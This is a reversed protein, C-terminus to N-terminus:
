PDALERYGAQSGVTSVRLFSLIREADVPSLQSKKEELTINTYAFPLTNNPLVVM